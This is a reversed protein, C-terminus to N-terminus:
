KFWSELNESSGEEEDRARFDAVYVGILRVKDKKKEFERLLNSSESFIIQKESTFTPLTNERSFTQFHTFRIRIGVVRFKVGASLIRMHLRDVLEQLKSLVEAQDAVDKEFTHEAGLSRMPREKVEIQELGNAVGWLWVGTKGFYKVLQQGPVKQLDGITKVGISDLFAETKTGIGSIARTPLPALFSKLDGPSVVTLGDPKQFDSAIKAASKNPAVGISCTLKQVSELKTKIEIAYGRAQEYNEEVKETVELFAEDISVQEFKDAFGKLLNMIKKSVDLYLPFNPRLYAANDKAIRYARSIPMGSRIGLKRAEYSCSVVVGRGRGGKPDAGVIVAKGKLQPNERIEVSPYFSDIDVHFIVRNSIKKKEPPESFADSLNDLRV